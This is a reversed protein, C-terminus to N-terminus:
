RLVVPRGYDDWAVVEGPVKRFVGRQFPEAQGGRFTIHRWTGEVFWRGDRAVLAPAVPWAPGDVIAAHLATALARAGSAARVMAAVNGDRFGFVSDDGFCTDGVGTAAAPPLTLSGLTREYWETTEAETSGVFVKVWGGDVNAMWGTEPSLFSPERLMPHDVPIGAHIGAASALACLWMM